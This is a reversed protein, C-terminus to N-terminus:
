AKAKWPGGKGWRFCDTGTCALDFWALTLNEQQQINHTVGAASYAELWDDTGYVSKTWGPLPTDPTVTTPTQSFGLVANWQKVEEGFVTFNLVEDATGHFLQMKPRWGTYGTYADKVLSAWAEPSQTLRGTACADGWVDVLSSTNTVNTSDAAKFCGFPVGSYASGAAFVDPYAGVLTSTMMAGSSVGTAFVRGKDANYKALTYNVMSVIGLSDGGKGHHLTAPSSLDWCKDATNPSDPYIVLFGHKDALTAYQTGKYADLASGHCWHPNVLIPPSPALKDPVYLYFGVNSPNNDLPATIKQITAAQTSALLAFLVGVKLAPSIAM